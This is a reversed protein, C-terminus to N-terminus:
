NQHAPCNQLTRTVDESSHRQVHAETTNKEHPSMREIPKPCSSWLPSTDDERWPTVPARWWCSADSTNVKVTQSFDHKDPNRM